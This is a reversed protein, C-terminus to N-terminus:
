KYDRKFKKEIDKIELLWSTPRGHPCTFRNKTKELDFLLQQMTEQPLTDGARVAAKCAMQARIRETIKKFFDQSDVGQLEKIWGITQEIVDHFPQDKLFVPTAKVVLQNLGFQEVEIGHDKFLFLHPALLLMDEEPITLMVPFLLSVVAVDQFRKEFKEYLIREHAAHQDIIFLGNQHELLLYTKKFQGILAYQEPINKQEVPILKNKNKEFSGSNEPSPPTIIITPPLPMQPLSTPSFEKQKLQHYPMATINQFPDPHKTPIQLALTINKKLQQSLHNELTAKIAATLASEVYRQNMFKIEEKKPHINIDITKQDITICIAAAPYRGTPLVIAYGIVLANTFKFNHVWRNNVFFFM